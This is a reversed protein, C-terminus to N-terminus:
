EDFWDRNMNKIKEVDEAPIILGITGYCNTTPEGAFKFYTKGESKKSFARELTAEKDKGHEIVEGGAVLGESDLKCKAIYVWEGNYKEDIEKMTLYM